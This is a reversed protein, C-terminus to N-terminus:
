TGNSLDSCCHRRGSGLEDAGSKTLPKPRGGSLYYIETCRRFNYEVSAFKFAVATNKCKDPKTNRHM